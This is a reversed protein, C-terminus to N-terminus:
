KVNVALTFTWEGKEGGEWPRSYEMHVTSTGKGVAEFTWKEQGAAGPMSKEPAIVEHGTQKLVGTNEIQATENWSFGTSGNSCLIVTVTEGKSVSIESTANPKQAFDDCSLAIDKGKDSACGSLCVPVMVMILLLILINKM